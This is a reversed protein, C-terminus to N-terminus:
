LVSAAKTLLFVVFVLLLVGAAAHAGMDGWKKKGEHIEGYIGVMNMCVRFLVVTGILLGIVLGIDYAYDQLLKIFNDGSTGRSPNSVTPLNAMAPGAALGAALLLFRRYLYNM